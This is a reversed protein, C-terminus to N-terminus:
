HSVHFINSEYYKCYKEMIHSRNEFFMCINRKIWASILSLDNISWEKTWAALVESNWPLRQDYDVCVEDGDDDDDDVAVCYVVMNMMMMMMMMMWLATALAEKRLVVM